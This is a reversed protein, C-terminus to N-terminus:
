FLKIKYRRTEDFHDFHDLVRYSDQAINKVHAQDNQPCWTNNPKFVLLYHTISQLINENRLAPVVKDQPAFTQKLFNM